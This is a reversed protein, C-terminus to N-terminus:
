VPCTATGTPRDYCVKTPTPGTKAPFYEFSLGGAFDLTFTETPGNPTAALDHSLVVVNTLVYKAITRPGLATTPTDLYIEVRKIPQGTAVRSELAATATDLQKTFTMPKFMPKAPGTGTVIPPVEVHASSSSLGIAGPRPISTTTDGYIENGTTMSLELAGTYGALQMPPMTLAAQPLSRDAPEPQNPLYRLGIIVIAAAAAIRLAASTRSHHPPAVDPPAGTTSQMSGAV